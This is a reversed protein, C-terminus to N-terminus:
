SGSVSAARSTFIEADPKFHRWIFWFLTYADARDLSTVM